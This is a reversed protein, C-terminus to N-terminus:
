NGDAIWALLEDKKRQLYTKWETSDLFPNPDNRNKLLEAKELTRNNECHNGLFLDVRENIVSDISKIYTDRMSLEPDGIEQLYERTLTNFGFGGYYGVRRIGNEGEVDFFAALCGETHGPVVRFLIRLDGFVLEEGDRIEHDCTFLQEAENPGDQLLAKEPHERFMRCDPEAMYLRTGGMSRLCVAGGIHDLHGHSLIAWRIKSPDFGLKWISHILMATAGVNGTDILLLGDGTDILHACVWTDGVYWIPGYIHFPEVFRKEQEVFIWGLSGKKIREWSEQYSQYQEKMTM